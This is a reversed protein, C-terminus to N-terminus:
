DQSHVLTLAPILCFFLNLSEGVLLSVDFLAVVLFYIGLAYLYRSFFVKFYFISNSVLGLFGFQFFLHYFMNHTHNFDDRALSELWSKYEVTGLGFVFNILSFNSILDDFHNWLKLRPLFKKLLYFNSDQTWQPEAFYILSLVFCFFLCLAIRYVNLGKEKFLKFLLFSLLALGLGIFSALSFAKLVGVLSLATALLFFINFFSWTFKSKSFYYILSIFILSSQIAWINPNGSSGDWRYYELYFSKALSYFWDIVYSLSILFFFYRLSSELKFSLYRSLSFFAKALFYVLMIQYANEINLWYLNYKDILLFSNDFIAWTFVSIFILFIWLTDQTNLSKFLDKQLSDRLEKSLLFRVIFASIIIGFLAFYMGIATLFIM